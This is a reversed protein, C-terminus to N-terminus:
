EAPEVQTSSSSGTSAADKDDEAVNLITKLEDMEGSHYMMDYFLGHADYLARPSGFEVVRGASMVVVSDYDIITRLRHAITVLTRAGGGDAAASALEDRLVKQIGRDTEYDMSATAEDLLMLKSQRILARCLSLVQRQGHSFNEGQADVDTELSIGQKRHGDDLDTDSSYDSGSFSAIGRCNELAKELREHPLLGTPDLNSAVTGNFLVAEQPIITLGKRLRDRPVHTIDVGDYLIQGSVIHTFRLLSLVLTSKGSGTRGVVAVREGAKFNLNVDTLINPGDPEYRITVNRFEIDGGRPWNKPITKTEDDAYGDEDPYPADHANEPELKVYEKVRHFSQIEVELDNMARVLMLITQNLGNANTLSFGVLGAGVLGAQNIAIIGASLAVLSTVFDVRVAVWRNCNYNTESAASWVRLKAALEKGFEKSKGERARIVALGALTDAFQSFVPSQSSSTLRKLIVATRTYMEGIVVGFLCTFFAPIMFIPMISSIAAIRFFLMMIADLASRLLSSLMGDISAMDGSFRNTIRGVPITKFWSLPVSMIARIFDNHLKRAARWAGWEFMVIIFGFSILELFTFAAYIGMYYAIDVYGKKNYAEVWVSLWFTGGFFFINSLFLGVICLIGFIPSGFYGMYEVFTLRGVKGSARMEQNVLDRNASGNVPKRTTDEADGNGTLEAEMPTETDGDEDGDGGLVEAITIPRRVAGINAEANIVRGKDLAIAYDAQSSIWPIQTVLVTTRGKLLNSCFARKWVGASTKADLASFIDDLLILSAGSYLARALAVRAKQGGSLSTGNEGVLTKDKLPLEHLDTLLCCAELVRNYRIRDMPSGFLVNNQITDNQLWATQSAYAIDSPATVAGSELYTEGLIAMLLTSKGSGSQGTVVNLGGQVFNLSINELSFAAKKNRRFSANIIRLPGVPYEVLPVATAFFKDLRGFAVIAGAFSRSLSSAMMINRRINKVLFVTTFATSADLRRDGVGVYLGFMVLLSFFPFAQTVQNIVTQLVAINWLGKQERARAAIIKATVADEWAFFKIARISALYETVLSIRADQTKRVVIQTKYMIRSLWFSIPTALILVATGVLSVWGLMQYLGILSIITGAPVGVFVMMVDRARFIADVDAAMLNALRGASTSKQTKPATDKGPDGSRKSSQFPDDELEMSELAKHYLEQTMASKIRVILRTSTFVYQQFLLSRTLPGLFVMALWVWPRYTAVTPLDLYDLLKFMGFPAVNEVAFASGAWFAMLTLETRQFRLSTLMTSRSLARARRIKRLLYLPEDYWALKPVASADLRGRTGKWVVPTLWEYSCFYNFWSVTEEPAPEQHPDYDPIIDDHNSSLRPPLWETPTVAAVVVAAVLAVLAGGVGRDSACDYHLQACPLYEAVTLLALAALLLLNVHQLVHRRWQLALSLRVLGLGFVYAALAATPLHASNRASAQLLFGLAAARCLQSVIEYPWKVASAPNRSTIVPRPRRRRLAVTFALAFLSLLLAVAQLRGSRAFDSAQKIWRLLPRPPYAEIDSPLVALPGPRLVVPMFPSFTSLGLRTFPEMVVDM